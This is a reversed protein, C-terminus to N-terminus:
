QGQSSDEKSYTGSGNEKLRRELEERGITAGARREQIMKWFEDSQSLEVQELDMCGVGVVVALPQGDRTLVIRERQAEDVCQDLNTQQIGVIKMIGPPAAGM